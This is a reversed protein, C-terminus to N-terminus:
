FLVRKWKRKVEKWAVCMLEEIIMENEGYKLLEIKALNAM